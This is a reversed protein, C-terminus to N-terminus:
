DVYGLARLRQALEREEDADYPQVDPGAGSSPGGTRGGRPGRPVHSLVDSWARGDMQETAPVGAMALVTAGADALEGAPYRGGRVGEGRVVCLGLERHSGAMSTGRAGTVEEARLRRVAERERGGRSGAAAYSFGGPERLRLVLDPVQGACPGDFLDERRVVDTVVPQGDFPDRFARLEHELQDLLPGADGADVTGEPERGRLNLWISPHYNLEESFLRTRRWDIGGLRVSSEITRAVNPLLAFASAQLGPPVLQIAMRRALGMTASWAGVSRFALWGRDCLWRNWFLVRDSSGGSGHDSVLVVDAAPGAVELLRALSQDLARYVQELASALHDGAGARYRPSSPDCLQWFQHAVTDSEGFHVMFCDLGREAILDSAIRTRLDIQALMQALAQEHWGAGIRAQQPGDIALGGYRRRLEDAMGRPETIRAAAGTGLPTDFGCVQFGDLAEPPYTAPVGYVGVRRGADNMLSWITPLRRYTSNVFRLSYGDRITFDTVGHRDPGAGTMFTTWAPYTVAPTTSRLPRSAGAELLAALTPMKGAGVLPDTLDFCAGDWAVVLLM